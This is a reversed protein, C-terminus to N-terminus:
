PAFYSSLDLLLNTPDTAFADISGNNTPVIAMNSTVAGDTANLTSVVPQAAGDPWLTLYGLSTTPVVTANLVYAQAAAPPACSSAHIPIVLTGDFAGAGNRTDILRCPTVTYLSLGGSAPPAFYGNVDLIVDAADSVVISVDGSTGAPVIAANATVVGTTANLTSVVPQAQGTPWATLFGLSNHPVATVNLSYAKATSPIGCTSSQVPFARGTNATLSPGGLSGTPNRTDAVRCPTLPYFELGSASTGAPVFYGDIDLIFQTADSAYVSVGGNTGTPTITANAKVRGDTSNLTSVNPQAQGAPWITLYGLSAIPVVTVNLSYAVATTPIGCGSQPVDFTRTAAAALEPGGFPGTANRTDAIRCPATAVFQLPGALFPKITYPASAIASNIYGPAIAIAEITETSSVFIAGTYKTSSATPVTGNNTYYIIAGSTADAITVSLQTTYTGAAPSFIPTAATGLSTGTLTFTASASVGSVSASATLGGVAKAIATVSAEGNSDTTVTNSPTFTLGAGSFMVLAGSVPNSDADKVIVILPKAFASGFATTQASGSVVAISAAGGTTTGSLNIKTVFLNANGGSAGKNTRQYAGATTPFNTSYATGFVYVDGSPDLAIGTAGDGDGDTTGSGGLYSSYVLASGTTNIETVFANAFQGAAGANKPQLANGTVPFDPSYAYGDVYANGLADVAISEGFDGGGLSTGSGGIYTSYVLATGTPNLKTIFGNWRKKAAGNDKTQFAGSTVPFDPSGTNGTIYANNGSDLAIALPTDGFNLAYGDPVGIGGSGGVYTSYVLATGKPNLKTVFGTTLNLAAAKNVTQFAGSTIPFDTSITFGTLYADGASDIAIGLATDLDIFQTYYPSGSGGLYTSYVLATGTPNIEAVWANSENNAASKNVGQVVGATVPFDKSRASGAVYANGASNIAIGAGNDGYGNSTGDQLGTGGLYTSYLLNSGTSDLKAVFANYGYPFANNQNQIAGQTVPFNSSWTSGTLYANGDKDVAIALVGDGGGGNVYDGNYGSSGSGGIYTSYDLGTGTPNLKSVYGVSTTFGSYVNGPDNTDYSGNTIPFDTSWTGGVVYASGSADVAIGHSNDDFNGANGGSGGLYTSYSLTPDIVLPSNHDYKGLKFGVSNKALLTFGGNVSLRQANQTQYIIPKHFVIEGNRAVVRLDGNSELRLRKAGAFHLRIPKTDAGPAVIFDYELQHQNGYYVLDIGPFVSGYRVKSYTPVNRHWKSPDSGIFYNAIGPLKEDGAVHLGHNVGALEMRVVDTAPREHGSIAAGKRTERRSNTKNLSLVAASDTLFLSYGDGRSLFRVQPDTQGQNAVFSLPLNGYNAVATARNKIAESAAPKNATPSQQGRCVMSMTLFMGLTLWILFNDVWPRGQTQPQFTFASVDVSMAHSRLM